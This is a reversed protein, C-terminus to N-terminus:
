RTAARPVPSEPHRRGALHAHPPGEQPRLAQIFPQNRPHWLVESTDIGAILDSVVDNGLYVLNFALRKAGVLRYGLRAALRSM